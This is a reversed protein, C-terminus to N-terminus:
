ERHNDLLNFPLVYYYPFRELLGATGIERFYGLDKNLRIHYTYDFDKAGWRKKFRYVGDQTKWTGGFNYFRYGDQVARTMSHLILLSLPQLNKYQGDIAPTFYEATRNYYLLFLGAAIDRGKRALFLRYGTGYTMNKRIYDFMEVPKPRGNKANINEKHLNYFVDFDNDDSSECVDLGSKQAKRVMNRTKTHYTEMLLEHITEGTQKKINTGIEDFCAVQGTRYDTCNALHPYFYSRTEFPSTIITSSICSYEKELKLFANLIDTMVTEKRNDPLTEDVAVAGHSGYFPLSNLVNGYEPDEMLFVPMIGMIKERNDLCVLYKSQGPIIHELLARYKLSYYLMARPNELLFDEYQNEMDRTLPVTKVPHNM